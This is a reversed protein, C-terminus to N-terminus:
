RNITNLMRKANENYPDLELAKKYFKIAEQKNGFAMWSEALSDFANSSAAYIITNLEFVKIAAQWKKESLLKYGLSNLEGEGFEYDDTKEKKLEHYLSICKDVGEKNIANHLINVISMTPLKYPKGNIINVIAENMEMRKSDGETLIIVTIKEKLLMGIFAKNFGSNGTHWIFRDGDKMLINWGFGYTSSGEKVPYPTFASDLSSASVLKETYFSQQWNLLDDVTSYMDGMGFTKGFISTNKMDLPQLIKENLFEAFKQGSVRSVIIALLLYGTNSYQYKQGPERFNTPQQLRELAINNTLKENDIGLDGV